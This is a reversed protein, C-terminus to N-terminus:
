LETAAGAWAEEEELSRQKSNNGQACLLTTPHHNKMAVWPVFMKCDPFYTPLRNGEELIVIRDWVHHHLFNTRRNTHTSAWGRCIEVPYKVPGRAWSFSVRYLRPYPPNLTDGWQNVQSTGNQDQHNATLFGAALYTM